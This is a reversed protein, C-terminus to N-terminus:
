VYKTTATYGGDTCGEEKLLLHCKSHLTHFFNICAVTSKNRTTLLSQNTYIGSSHQTWNPTPTKHLENGNVDQWFSKEQRQQRWRM